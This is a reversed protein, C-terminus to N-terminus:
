PDIQFDVTALHICVRQEAKGEWIMEMFASRMVSLAVTSASSILLPCGSGRGVGGNV